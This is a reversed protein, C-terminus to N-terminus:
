RGEAESIIYGQAAILRGEYEYDQRTYNVFVKAGNEYTTCTVGDALYTHHTIRGGLTVDFLEKTIKYNEVVTDKWLDFDASYLCDLETGDVLTNDETIFSYHLASGTELSQLLMKRGDGALNIPDGCYTFLGSVALQYFPVSQDTVTYGNSTMPLNVALGTAKLAYQPPAEVTLTASKATTNLLEEMAQMSASRAVTQKGYDTYVAPTPLYLGELGYKEARGVIKSLIKNQADVRLFFTKLVSNDKVLTNRKFAYDGAPMNSVNRLTDRYVSYGKGSKSASGYVALPYLGGGLAEVNDKLATLEGLSGISGILSLKGDAKKALQERTWQQLILQVGEVEEAKLTDVIESIDSLRSLRQTVTFPIGLISKKKKVAGYFDLFLAPDASQKYELGYSETLYGRYLEAMTNYDADGDAVLRYSVQIGDIAIDDKQYMLYSQSRATNEGLVVTDTGRLTFDAYCTAYPTNKYNPVANVAAQASGKEIIALAVGRSNKIGYVPLAAKKESQPKTVVSSLADRGYIAVRYDAASQRQNNFHMLSGSGDPLLMYGEDDPHGAGFYPLLSLGFLTSEEEIKDVPVTATFGDDNLTIQLPIKIDLATFNYTIEFGNKIAKFTTGGKRVSMAESNSKSLLKATADYSNILLLSSQEMKFVASTTDEERVEPNSYWCTGSKIHQLYFQGSQKNAFLYFDNNSAVPEYGAPGSPADAGVTASVGAPLVATLAILMVLVVASLKIISRTM